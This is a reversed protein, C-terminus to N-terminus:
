PQRTGSGASGTELGASLCAWAHTAFMGEECGAPAPSAESRVTGPPPQGDRGHLGAAYALVAALILLLYLPLATRAARRDPRPGTRRGSHAARLDM